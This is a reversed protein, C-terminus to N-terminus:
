LDLVTERVREKQEDTTARPAGQPTRRETRAGHLARPVPQRRPHLRARHLLPLHPAIVVPMHARDVVHAGGQPQLARGLEGVQLVVRLLYEVGLLAVPKPHLLVPVQEVPHTTRHVAAAARHSSVQNTAGGPFWATSVWLSRIM